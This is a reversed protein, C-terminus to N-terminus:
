LWTATEIYLHRRVLIHIGMNIILRDRSRSRRIKLMPIGMGPFSTRKISVPGLHRPHIIVSTIGYGPDKNVWRGRSLIAATKASLMKLHMKKFSFSSIRISIESFSTGLLGILLLDANTWTIAQNESGIIIQNSICIHMAQGWHTGQPVFKIDTTLEFYSWHRNKAIIEKSNAHQTCYQIIIPWTKPSSWVLVICKCKMQETFLSM